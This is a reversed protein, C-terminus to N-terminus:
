ISKDCGITIVSHRNLREWTLPEWQRAICLLFWLWIRPRPTYMLWHCGSKNFVPLIFLERTLSEWGWRLWLWNCGITYFNTFQFEKPGSIKVAVLGCCLDSDFGFDYPLFWDTVVLLSLFSGFWLRWVFFEWRWNVLQLCKLRIRLRPFYILWSCCITIVFVAISLSM